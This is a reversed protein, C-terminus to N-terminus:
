CKIIYHLPIKCCYFGFETRSSKVNYVLTTKLELLSLIHRIIVNTVSFPECSRNRTVLLPDPVLEFQYNMKKQREFTPTTMAYYKKVHVNKCLPDWCISISFKVAFKMRVALFFDILACLCYQKEDFNGTKMQRKTPCSQNFKRAQVQAGLWSQANMTGSRQSCEILLM